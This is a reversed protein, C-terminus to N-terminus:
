ELIESEPLEPATEIEARVNRSNRWDADYECADASDFIVRKLRGRRFEAGANELTEALDLM